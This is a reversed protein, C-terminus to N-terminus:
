TADPADEDSAPPSPKTIGMQACHVNFQRVAEVVIDLDKWRIRKGDAWAAIPRGVADTNIMLCGPMPIPLDVFESGFPAMRDPHTFDNCFSDPAEGPAYLPDRYNHPLSFVTVPQM